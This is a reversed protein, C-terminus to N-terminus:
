PHAQDPFTSLEDVGFVSDIEEDDLIRIAVIREGPKLNPELLSVLHGMSVCPNKDESVGYFDRHWENDDDASLGFIEVHFVTRFVLEDSM